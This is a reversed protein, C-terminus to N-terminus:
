STSRACTWCSALRRSARFSSPTCDASIRSVLAEPIESWQGLKFFFQRQAKSMQSLSTFSRSQLLATRPRATNRRLVRMYMALQRQFQEFDILAAEGGLEEYLKKADIIRPIEETM